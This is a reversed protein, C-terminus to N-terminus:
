DSDVGVQPHLRSGDSGDHDDLRGLPETFASLLLQAAEMASPSHDLWHAAFCELCPFATPLPAAGKGTAVSCVLLDAERCTQKELRGGSQTGAGSIGTAAYGRSISVSGRGRDADVGSTKQDQLQLHQRQQQQWQKPLQVLYYACLSNCAEHTVLHGGDAAAQKVLHRSLLVLSLLRFACHIITAHSMYCSVITAHVGM